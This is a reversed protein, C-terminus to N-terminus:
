IGRGVRNALHLVKEATILRCIVLVTVYARRERLSRRLTEGVKKLATRRRGM